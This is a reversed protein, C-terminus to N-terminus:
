AFGELKLKLDTPSSAYQLATEDDIIGQKYLQYLSSDFHQM